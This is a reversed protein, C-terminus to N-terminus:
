YNYLNITTSDQLFFAAAAVFTECLFVICIINFSTLEKIDFHMESPCNHFYKEKECKQICLPFFTAICFTLLKM